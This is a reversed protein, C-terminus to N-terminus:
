QLQRANFKLRIINAMELKQTETKKMMLRRQAAGNEYWCGTWGKEIALRERVEVPHDLIVATKKLIESREVRRSFYMASQQGHAESIRKMEDQYAQEYINMGVASPNESVVPHDPSGHGNPQEADAGISLFATFPLPDHAQCKANDEAPFTFARSATSRPGSRHDAPNCEPRKDLRDNNDAEAARSSWQRQLAEDSPSAGKVLDTMGRPPKDMEDDLPVTRRLGEVTLEGGIPKRGRADLSRAPAADGRIRPRLLYPPQVSRSDRGFVGDLVHPRKRALLAMFRKVTCVMSMPNRANRTIALNTKIQTSREVLDRCNEKASILPYARMEDITIRKRPDKELLRKILDEFSKDKGDEIVLEDNRISDYLELMNDKEFPIHGYRLCYLTVGMSWVDATRGSVEGHKTVCLEPPRFAPTGASKHIAMDSHKEFIESVGFDIIRLVDDNTILCNNPKIDQHVFGQAHLYEIGLIMNRFWCRCVEEDYPMTCSGLSVDMVVGKKCIDMVMYLSDDGPDDLVEHLSVLNKHSLKKMIAIEDKILDLSNCTNDKGKREESVKRHLPANFGIEAALHGPKRQKCSPGQRLLNSNARKQLGSKSFEKVAYEIGYQGVARHVASCSGRGIEEKVEYQNIRNVNREDDDGNRSGRHSAATLTTKVGEKRPPHRQDHRIPSAYTPLSMYRIYQPCSGSRRDQDVSATPLFKLETGHSNTELIGRVAIDSQTASVYHPRAQNRPPPPSSSTSDSKNAMAM